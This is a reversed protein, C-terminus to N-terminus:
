GVFVGEFLALTAFAAFSVVAAFVVDGCFLVVSVLQLVCFFDSLARM